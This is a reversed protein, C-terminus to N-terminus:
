KTKVGTSRVLSYVAQVQPKTTGPIHATTGGTASTPATPQLAVLSTFFDSM